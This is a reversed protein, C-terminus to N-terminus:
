LVQKALVYEKKEATLYKYLNVIRVAFAFSKSQVAGEKM